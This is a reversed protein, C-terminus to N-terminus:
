ECPALADQMVEAFTLANPTSRGDLKALESRIMLYQTNLRDTTESLKFYQDSMSDLELEPHFNSRFVQRCTENLIAANPDREHLDICAAYTRDNILKTNNDSYTNLIATTLTDLKQLKDELCSSLDMLAMRKKQEEEKKLRAQESEIKEKEKAALISEVLVPDLTIGQGNVFVSVKGTLSTYCPGINEEVYSSFVTKWDEMDALLKDREEASLEGALCAKIRQSKSAAQVEETGAFVFGFIGIAGAILIKKM